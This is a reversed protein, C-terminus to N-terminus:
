LVTVDRCEQFVARRVARIRNGELERCFPLWSQWRGQTQGDGGDRPAAPSPGEGGAGDGGPREGGAAAAALGAPQTSVALEAEADGRLAVCRANSDLLQEAPVQASPVRVSSTTACGPARFRDQQQEQVVCCRVSDCVPLPQFPGRHTM